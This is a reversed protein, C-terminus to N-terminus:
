GAFRRLGAARLDLDCCALQLLLAHRIDTPTARALQRVLTNRRELLASRAAPHFAPTPRGFASPLAPPLPVGTM